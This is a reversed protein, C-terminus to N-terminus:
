ELQVFIPAFLELAETPLNEINIREASIFGDNDGDMLM